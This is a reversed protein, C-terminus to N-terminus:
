PKPRRPAPWGLNVALRELLEILQEREGSDFDKLAHEAAADLLRPVADAANRGAATLAVRVRRGDAPDPRRTVLGAAEMRQTMVTVTPVEVHMRRALEGTTMAEEDRLADLLFNQGPHVGLARMEGAAAAKFSRSAAALADRFRQATSVM